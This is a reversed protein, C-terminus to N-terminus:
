RAVSSRMTACAMRLRFNVFLEGDLILEGPVLLRVKFLPSPSTWLPLKEKFTWFFSPTANLSITGKGSISPPRLRELYIFSTISGGTNVLLDISSLNESRNSVKDPRCRM